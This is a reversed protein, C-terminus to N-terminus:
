FLFHLLLNNNSNPPPPLKEPRKPPDDEKPPPSDNNNHRKPKVLLVILLGVVILTLLLIIKCKQTRKQYHTAQNLEKDAQKVNTYMTEINYDIRDLLTGQDIVMTQLDKFIEALELIGQAINTIEQERQQFNEDQSTALQSSQKLTNQSFSVDLEDEMVPDYNYNGSSGGFPSPSDRGSSGSYPNDGINAPFAENRLSKLYNSQMKRFSTSMEQIKTALSIKMNAAMKMEAPRTVDKTMSEFRKMINQCSHLQQTITYTLQEIEKEEASRDDFGPLANKKHLSDLHSIKKKIESLTDDVEDSIDLWSPPLVDMEIAFGDNDSGGAPGAHSMLGQQEEPSDDYGGTTPFQPHHAYSQRFSIYLNTRDRFMM